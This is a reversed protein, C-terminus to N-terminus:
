AKLLDKNIKRIIDELFIEIKEFELNIYTGNETAYLRSYNIDKIKITKNLNEWHFSRNRLLVFINLIINTKSANSFKHKKGKTFFSNKNHPHYKKLDLKRLDLMFNQLQYDQILRIITGLTLRSLIQHHKLSLNKEKKKIELVKTQLYENQSKEIWEKNIIQGLCFDLMNRLSIEISAIKYSIKSIFQLNENHEKLDIYSTLREKSYLNELDKYFFQMQKKLDM